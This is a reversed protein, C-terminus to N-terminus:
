RRSRTTPAAGEQDISANGQLRTIILTHRQDPFFPLLAKRIQGQNDALLFKVWDPNAITQDACPVEAARTLTTSADALRKAQDAAPARGQADLTVKGAISQTLDCNKSLVLNNSLRLADVPTIM